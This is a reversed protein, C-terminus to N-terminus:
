PTYKSLITAVHKKWEPLPLVDAKAVLLCLMVTDRTKGSKIWVRGNAGVASEFRFKAGLAGLVQSDPAQLRAALALSVEVINGGGKLEGYLTEGSVWSGSSGPEVCSVECEMDPDALKVWCYVAAGVALAPKNRKTAGEFALVALNAVDTGRMEIRYEEAFRDTVVAM